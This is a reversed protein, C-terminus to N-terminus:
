QQSPHHPLRTAYGEKNIQRGRAIAIGDAPVDKSIVSGAASLANDGIEIPSILTSNSGIFVHNGIKSTYKHKGDYNAIITGAGFNVEQGVQANGIYTLHGAKTNKDLTSSKVEVFNGVHVGEKLTSDPRLHAYPGVTVGAEVVSNELMSNTIVANQSISSDLIYSGNTLYAGSAIKTQGKLTVNAEITVDPEITVDVDIYTSDPNQFSVGNVMHRNNIRRRMISEAKALALRDNVGLSEDFDRLTFAGVKEGAQRFVSIVDTLYYEGQANNTNISKLAQFLRKNDFVYTGTNIEKVEQEFKTADKQEVIGVVKGNERVIRGYGTPNDLVVTLVAIGNEPKADILKQLTEPTIMPGDGYVMLVNEDDRFFPMAQQMAHGTGLQKAQFVWNVSENALRERMLEGGHGYILHVNEAGLQNATDIVHKVMPKGAVKHLVKPLDSYMRTGKGAALIVVSLAKNTM